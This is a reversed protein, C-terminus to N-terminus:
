AIGCFTVCSLLVNHLKLHKTYNAPTLLKTYVHHTGGMCDCLHVLCSIIAPTESRSSLAARFTSTHLTETCIYMSQSFSPMSNEHCCAFPGASSKVSQRFWALHWIEIYCFKPTYGPEVTVGGGKTASHIPYGMVKMPGCPIGLVDIASFWQHLANMLSAENLSSLRTLM